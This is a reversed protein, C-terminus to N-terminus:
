KSTAVWVGDWDKPNRKKLIECREVYMNSCKDDPNGKQAKTFQAIAKDWNGENYYEMGNNFMELVEIMNPFTEKSHYDLVEYVKVPETKGKVIVCDVQRTRYTAKLAHFTYESMLIHAGYKKCSSEVRAALNVGDGIVTYDMRKPSGINGSVIEDTNLGMGHDVPPMGKQKRVANFENLGHMMQIAARLGRDPDDDHAVPTGFIAMIADGIFKDLMGGEDQICDVMVSFYDNLFGVTGQAGLSETLTTFSRIDSFLVTGISEKGGMVDDGEGGALLQDALDADMYRSMTSKMRKESSIDEIMLLSGLSENESGTLPMITLNTSIKEGGFELEADAIFETEEVKTLKEVIWKNKGVFFKKFEQKIIENESEMKMIKVGAPNCKEILGDENITIVGNSMSNLMSENYNMLGQINDFLSANEIGISIQSTFATLRSVDEPTFAGGQKNLVQSVGIIKGDKNTVPACLMSRTFFGTQKDVGPNFRLDAYAHPINVTEGSTFVHGAIGMHNPFRLEQSLGEGVMTFLEGTKEDNIFLSSREADLMTTITAIIKSLLSTLELESSIESVLDMFELEKQRAQDMQELAVHSQIAIAAQATMAELLDLDSDQFQGDTKNLLQSVGIRKGSVTRLPTCLISKTRFGTRIDVNKNFRDDKYADHVIVGKENTYSWGAVGKTNMFRIERMFNGQAVRSYLEESKPDNLFITGRECKIISTTIGVLAELAQDLTETVALDNNVQLLLESYQGNKEKISKTKTAM